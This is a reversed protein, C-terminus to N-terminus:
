TSDFQPNCVRGIFYPLRNVSDYVIFMFPHDCVLEPTPERIGDVYSFSTVAAAVTGYENVEMVARQSVDSVHLPHSKSAHIGTLDASSSNFVSKIGINKLIPVLNWDSEIKFKPLYFDLQENSFTLEDISLHTLQEEVKTLGDIENPIFIYLSVKHGRYPLAVIACSLKTPRAVKFFSDKNMMLVKEEGKPGPFHFPRVQTLEADFPSQWAAKFYIANILLMRTQSVDYDPPLIGGIKGQTKLQVWKNVQYILKQAQNPDFTDVSSRFKEVAKARFQPDIDYGDQVLMKTAIQILSQGTQDLKDLLDNLHDENDSTILLTNKLEELTVGRAGSATLCLLIWAGLGSILTNGESTSLEKIAQTYLSITFKFNPERNPKLCSRFAEEEHNVSKPLNRVPVDLHQPSPSNHRGKRLKLQRFMTQISM